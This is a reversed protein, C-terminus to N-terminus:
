DFQLLAVCDEMEKNSGDVAADTRIGVGQGGMEGGGGRLVVAVCSILANGAM